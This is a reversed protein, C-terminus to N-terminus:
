KWIRDEDAVLSEDSASQSFAIVIFIIITEYDDDGDAAAAADDDDDDDDDNNNDTIPHLSCSSFSFNHLRRSVDGHFCLKQTM